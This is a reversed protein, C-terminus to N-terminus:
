QKPAKQVIGTGEFELVREQAKQSLIKNDTSSHWLNLRQVNQYGSAKLVPYAQLTAAVMRVPFFTDECILVVPVHKDPAINPLTDETLETLPLNVSGKLHRANFHEPSTVDLVVVPGQAKLSLFGALDLEPERPLSQQFESPPMTKIKKIQAALSEAEEARAALGPLCIGALGILM